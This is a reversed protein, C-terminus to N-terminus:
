KQEKLQEIDKKFVIDCHIGADQMDYRQSLALIEDLVKEREDARTREEFRKMYETTKRNCEKCKHTLNVVSKPIEIM